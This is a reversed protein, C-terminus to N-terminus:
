VPSKVLDYTSYCVIHWPGVQLAFFICFCVCAIYSVSGDYRSDGRMSSVWSSPILHAYPFFKMRELGERISCCQISDYAVLMLQIYCYTPSFQQEQRMHALDCSLGVSHMGRSPQPGVAAPCIFLLKGPCVGLQPPPNAGSQYAPLSPSFGM